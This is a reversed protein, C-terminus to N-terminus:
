RLIAMHKPRAVIRIAVEARIRSEHRTAWIETGIRGQEFSRCDRQVLPSFVEGPPPLKQRELIVFWGGGVKDILRALEVDGLALATPEGREHQHAKIWHFGTPLAM